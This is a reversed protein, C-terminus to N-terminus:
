FVSPYTDYISQDDFELIDVRAPSQHEHLFGLAHGFEHLIIAREEEDVGPTSCRIGELNMTPQGRNKRYCARGMCSWSADEDDFSIRIDGEFEVRQFTINTFMMWQAIVELVKAHQNFNGSVFSFTIVQLSSILNM